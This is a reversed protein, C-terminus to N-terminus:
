QEGGVSVASPAVAACAGASLVALAAFTLWTVVPSLHLPGRILWDALAAAYTSLGISAAFLSALLGQHAPLHWVFGYLAMSALAGACDALPVALWVIWNLSPSSLALAFAALAAATVFAGGFGSVRPGFRDFLCGQALTSAVSVGM